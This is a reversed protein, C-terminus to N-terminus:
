FGIKLPWEELYPIRHGNFKKSHTFKHLYRITHGNVSLFAELSDEDPTKQNGIGRVVAIVGATLLDM